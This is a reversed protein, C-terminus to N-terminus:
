RFLAQGRADKAARLLTPAEPTDKLWDVAEPVAEIWSVGPPLQDSLPLGPDRTTEWTALGRMADLVIDLDFREAGGFDFDLMWQGRDRKILVGVPGLLRVLYSGMGEPRRAEVISFGRDLLWRLTHKVDDPAQEPFWQSSAPVGCERAM